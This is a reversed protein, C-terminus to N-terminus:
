HWYLPYQRTPFLNNGLLGLALMVSAIGLSTLVYGYGLSEIIEGGNVGILACTAGSPHRTKTVNMVLIALSVALASTISSSLGIYDSLMRLSVGLCSCLFYSGMVNRPQALPSQHAEAVLVSTASYSSTLMYISYTPLLYFADIISLLLIGLFSLVCSIFTDSLSATPPPTKGEVGKFKQYYFHLYQNLLDQFNDEVKQEKKEKEEKESVSQNPILNYERLFSVRNDNTFHISDHPEGTIHQQQQNKHHNCPAPDELDEIFSETTITRTREKEM